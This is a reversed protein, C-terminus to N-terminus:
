IRRHDSGADTQTLANYLSKVFFIKNKGFQWIVLDDADQLQYRGADAM